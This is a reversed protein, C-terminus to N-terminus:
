LGAAVYGDRARVRWAGAEQGRVRVRIPHWRGAEARGAPAYGLLYQHRLERAISGLAADLGRADRLAVARGGTLRAADSLLSSIQDRGFVIPYVLASGRRARELMAAASVQSYRDTGDSFVVLAQRGPEPELRDLTKVVADRLATTSWADLAAVARLQTDRPADLPAVVEAEANIAIVMSRDGPQLQRLFGEAARRALRLPEGAMSLSRDVGLAVTLPFAGEAFTTITQPRGDDDLQFDGAKLGTVPEGAGDTVTAYVEVAQVGSSFRAQAEEQAQPVAAPVGAALLALGLWVGKM